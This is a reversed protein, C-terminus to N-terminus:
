VAMLSFLFIEAIYIGWTRFGGKINRTQKKNQEERREFNM